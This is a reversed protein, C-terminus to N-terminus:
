CHNLRSLYGLDVCSQVLTEIKKGIQVQSEDDTEKLTETLDPTLTM